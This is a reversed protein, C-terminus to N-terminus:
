GTYGCFREDSCRITKRLRMLWVKQRKATASKRLAYDNSFTM